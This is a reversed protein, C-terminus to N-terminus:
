VALDGSVCSKDQRSGLKNTTHETVSPPAVMEATDARSSVFDSVPTARSSPLSLPLKTTELRANEEGSSVEEDRQGLMKGLHPYFMRALGALVFFAAVVKVYIQPILHADHLLTFIIAALLSILLLGMGQNFAIEYKTKAAKAAREDPLVLEKVGSLSFGCARCYRVKDSVQQLGCQPCHM